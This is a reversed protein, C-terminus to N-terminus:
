LENSCFEKKSFEKSYFTAAQKVVQLSFLDGKCGWLRSIIGEGQTNM